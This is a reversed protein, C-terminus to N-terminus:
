RNRQVGLQFTDVEINLRILRQFQPIDALVSPRLGIRCAHSLLRDCIPLLVINGKQITGILKTQLIQQALRIVAATAAPTLAASDSGFLVDSNLVVQKGAQVHHAAKPNAEKIVPRVASSPQSKQSSKPPAAKTSPAALRTTSAVNAAQATGQGGTAVAARWTLGAALLAVVVGAAGIWRRRSTLTRASAPAPVSLSNTEDTVRLAGDDRERAMAILGGTVGIVDDTGSIQAFLARSDAEVLLFELSSETSYTASLRVNVWVRRSTPEVGAFIGTHDGSM